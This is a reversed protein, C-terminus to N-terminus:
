IRLSLGTRLRRTADEDNACTADTRAGAAGSAGPSPAAGAANPVPGAHPLKPGCAAAGLLAVLLVPYPSAGRHYRRTM